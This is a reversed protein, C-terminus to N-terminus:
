YVGLDKLIEDIGLSKMKLIMFEMITPQFPSRALVMNLERLSRDGKKNNCTKCSAVCNEFTSKGGKSTPNLHDINLLISEHHGSANLVRKKTKSNFEEGCYQCTFNDRVFVNKKSFPVRTKYITRVIKVLRIVLPIAIKWTKLEDTLIRTTEKLVEVKNKCVLRMATKWHVLNLFSYDSNLVIVKNM